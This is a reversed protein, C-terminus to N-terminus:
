FTSILLSGPFPWRRLDFHDSLLRCTLLQDPHLQVELYTLMDGASSRIAGCGTLADFEWSHVPQGAAYGQLFRVRQEESLTIATDRLGLPETIEVKLLLPYSAGAANALGQGLLGFGLNSYLFAANKPKEVGRKAMFAYLDSQRYDIYPNSDDRPHFNEPLRPLGSQHTVLHVLEIEPGQPRRVTGPPLLKRIPEDLSVKGQLIMQSLLLGTFTKTISGIEYLSDPSRLVM